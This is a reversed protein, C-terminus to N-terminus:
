GHLSVEIQKLELSMAVEDLYTSLGKLKNISLASMPHMAEKDPHEHGYLACILPEPAKGTLMSRLQHRLWNDQHSFFDKLQYRVKSPTIASFGKPNKRYIQILPQESNLIAELPFLENSYIANHRAAFKKLYAIYNNVAQIVFDSLPILRGEAQDNREEKDSVWLIKLDFDFQHLLGPAHKVPRIGTQIIIIHWLWISYANFQEIYRDRKKSPNRKLCGNFNEVGSALQEFFQKCVLKKLVMDSGIYQKYHSSVIETSIQQRIKNQSDVDCYQTIFHIAKRYTQELVKTEISIYYLPSSHRVDVGTIMDAHLPEDIENKIIIFLGSEIHQSTLAPMGLQNKIHRLVDSVEDASVSLKNEIVSQLEIPLPMKFESGHSQKHKLLHSRRNPTVNIMTSISVIHFKNSSDYKLWSRLSRELQLEHIVDSIKRGSLLSLILVAYSHRVTYSATLFLKWLKAFVMQYGTISLQRTNTPFRFQNRRAHLYNNKLKWQQLESSKAVYRAPKFDNDLLQTPDTEALNEDFAVNNDQHTGGFTIACFPEDDVDIYKKKTNTKKEQKSSSAFRRKSIFAKDEAVVEYALRIQGIKSALKKNTLVGSEEGVRTEHEYTRLHTLVQQLSCDQSHLTILNDIIEVQPNNPKLGMRVRVSLQNVKPFHQDQRATIIFIMQLYGSIFRWASSGVKIEGHVQYFIALMYTVAWVEIKGEKIVEEVINQCEITTLSATEINSWGEIVIHYNPMFSIIDVVLQQVRQYYPSGLPILKDLVQRAISEEFCRIDAM